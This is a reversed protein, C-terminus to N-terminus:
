EGGLLAGKLAAVGATVVREGQQFAGQVVVSDDDGALRTVPLLMVAGKRAVFVAPKNRWQFVARAPVRWAAPVPGAAGGAEVQVPVQAGMQLTGATDLGIRLRLVGTGDMSPAMGLVMGHAGYAPVRAKDGIRFAPAPAPVAAELEMRDSQAIRVLVEGAAFRQGAVAAIAVVTGGAPAVMVPAGGGQAARIGASALASARASAAARAERARAEAARLRAAPIIGEDYLATDRRLADAAVSAQSGAEALARQAEFYEASEFRVLPEGARVRAGLTVLIKSAVGPYAAAVVSQTGYAPVVRATVGVPLASVPQVAGYGVGLASAQQTSLPISLPAAQAVPASAPATAPLPLAGAQSSAAPRSAAYAAPAACAAGTGLVLVASVCRTASLFIM